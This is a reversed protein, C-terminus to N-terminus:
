KIFLSGYWAEENNIEEVMKLAVNDSLGLTLAFEEANYRSERQSINSSLITKIENIAQQNTM